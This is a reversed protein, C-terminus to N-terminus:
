PCRADSDRGPAASASGPRDPRNGSRSGGRPHRAAFAARQAPALERRREIIDPRPGLDPFHHDGAAVREHQRRPPQARDDRREVGNGCKPTMRKWVRTGITAGRGPRHPAPPPARPRSPPRHRRGRWGGARASRLPAPRRRGAADAGANRQQRLRHQELADIVVRRRELRQEAAEDRHPDLGIVQVMEVEGGAGGM